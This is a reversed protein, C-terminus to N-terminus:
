NLLLRSSLLFKSKAKALYAEEVRSLVANYTSLVDDWMTASGKHLAVEVPEGVQRKM